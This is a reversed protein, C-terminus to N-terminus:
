LRLGFRNEFQLKSSLNECAIILMPVKNQLLNKGRQLSQGSILPIQSAVLSDLYNTPFYLGPPSLFLLQSDNKQSSHRHPYTVTSGVLM